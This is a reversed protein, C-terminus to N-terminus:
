LNGASEAPHSTGRRVLFWSILLLADRTGPRGKAQSCPRSRRALASVYLDNSQLANAGAEITPPRPSRRPRAHLRCQPERAFQRFSECTCSEALWHRHKARSAGKWMRPLLREGHRRRALQGTRLMWLHLRLLGNRFGDKHSSFGDATNRRLSPVYSDLLPCSAARNERLGGHKERTELKQMWLM